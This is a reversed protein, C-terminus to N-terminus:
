ELEFREKLGDRAQVLLRHHRVIKDVLPAIRGEDYAREVWFRAQLLSLWRDEDEIWGQQYALVLADKLGQDSLGKSWLLRRLLKHFLDVCRAFRHLIGDRDLDSAPPADLGTGLRELADRFQAWRRAWPEFFLVGESQIDLRRELDTSELRILDIRLLTPQSDIFREIQAWQEDSAEPCSVAIDIDDREEHDERSRSGFLYAKRVFPMSGFGLALQSLIHEVGSGSGPPSSPASSQPDIIDIDAIQPRAM